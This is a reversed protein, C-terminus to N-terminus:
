ASSRAFRRRRHVLWALAVVGALLMGAPPEPVVRYVEGGLDVIYMEGFGDEGFAVVKDISGARPSLQGTRDTVEASRKGIWSGRPYCRVFERDERVHGFRMTKRSGLVTPSDLPQQERGDSQERGKQEKEHLRQDGLVNKGPESARRRHPVDTHRKILGREESAVKVRVEEDGPNGGRALEPYM